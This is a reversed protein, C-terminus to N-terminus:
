PDARPSPVSTGNTDPSGPSAAPVTAKKRRFLRKIEPLFERAVNWGIATIFHENVSRLGEGRFTQGPTWQSAAYSAGYVSLIRPWNVVRRQKQDLTIFEYLFSHGLRQATGECRCAIYRVEYGVAASLGLDVSSALFARGYRSASRRGFGAWGSGLENNSGSGLEVAAILAVRAFRNPNLFNENVWLDRRQKPTLPVIPQDKPLVAGIGLNISAANYTPASTQAQALLPSVLLAAVLRGLPLTV